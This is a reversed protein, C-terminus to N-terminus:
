YRCLRYKGGASIMKERIQEATGGEITAKDVLFAQRRNQYLFFYRSTEVTKAILTYRIESAGTLEPNESSVAISEDSFLYTNRTNQLKGMARFQVVPLLFYIYSYLLSILLICVLLLLSFFEWGFVMIEFLCVALLAALGIMFGYFQKKPDRKGFANSLVFARVADQSYSCSAKIQM